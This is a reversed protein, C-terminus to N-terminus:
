WSRRHDRENQERDLEDQLKRVKAELRKANAIAEMALGSITSANQTRNVIHWWLSEVVDVLSRSSAANNEYWASADCQLCPVNNQRWMQVVEPRDDIAFLVDLNRKRIDDLMRKKVDADASGDGEARMHLESFHVDGEKLWQLTMKAYQSPRGTALIIHATHHKYFLNIIERVEKFVTDHPMARFFSDWDKKASQMHHQRHQTNALTGDVDVIICEGVLPLFADNHGSPTLIVPDKM